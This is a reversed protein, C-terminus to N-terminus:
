DGHHPCGEAEMDNTAQNLDYNDQSGETDSEHPDALDDVWWSAPDFDDDAFAGGIRPSAASFTKGRYFTTTWRHSRQFGRALSTLVAAKGLNRRKVKKLPKPTNEDAQWQRPACWGRTAEM